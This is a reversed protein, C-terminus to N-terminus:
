ALQDAILFIPSEAYEGQFKAAVPAMAESIVDEGLKELDNVQIVEFYRYPPSQDAGLMSGVRFVKMRDVSELGEVTPVDVERAWEEYEGPDVGEALNFLVLITAM